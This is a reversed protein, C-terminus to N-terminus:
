PDIVTITVTEAIGISEAGPRDSRNPATATTTMTTSVTPAEPLDVELPSAGSEAFESTVVPSPLTMSSTEDVPQSCAAFAFAACALVNAVLGGKM